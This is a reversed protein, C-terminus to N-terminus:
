ASLHNHKIERVSCGLMHAASNKLAVRRNNLDRIAVARRGVEELGLDQELGQRLQWELEWIGKHIETLKELHEQVETTIEFRSWQQEYWDLEEKNAQTREWKIRAICLRDILELVPFFSM